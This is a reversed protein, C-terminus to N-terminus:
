QCLYFKKKNVTIDANIVLINSFSLVAVYFWLFITVSCDFTLSIQEQM